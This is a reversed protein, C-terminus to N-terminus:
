QSINLKREVEIADRLKRLLDVPDVVLIECLTILELLDIRRECIEIRAIITQTRGWAKALQEQNMGLAKRAAVLEDILRQYHANHITQV